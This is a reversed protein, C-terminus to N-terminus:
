HGLRSRQSRNRYSAVMFFFRVSISLRSLSFEDPGTAFFAFFAFFYASESAREDRQELRPAM